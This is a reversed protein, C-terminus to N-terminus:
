SGQSKSNRCDQPAIRESVAAMYKQPVDFRANGDRVTNLKMILYNLKKIARYRQSTDQM